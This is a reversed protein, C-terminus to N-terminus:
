RPFGPGAIAPLELSWIGLGLSIGLDLELAFASRLKGKKIPIQSKRPIQNQPNPIEPAIAGTEEGEGAQQM